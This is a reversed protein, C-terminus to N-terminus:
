KLALKMQRALADMAKATAGDADAEIVDFARSWFFRDGSTVTMRAAVRPGKRRVSGRLVFRAQADGVMPETRGYRDLAKACTQAMRDGLDAQAPDPELDKFPAIAIQIPGEAPVAPRPPTFLVLAILALLVVVGAMIVLISIQDPMGM